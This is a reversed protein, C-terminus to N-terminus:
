SSKRNAFLLCCGGPTHFGRDNIPQLEPSVIRHTFGAEDLRACLERLTGHDFHVEMTLNRVRQLWDPERFVAFESGEIDMKLFDVSSLQHKDLLRRMSLVPVDSGGAIAAASEGIYAQELFYNKFGNLNMNHEYLVTFERLCEVSVVVKAHTAMCLSFLGRNAGLDVVTKADDFVHEPHFAFYSDRILMEQVTYFAPPDPVHRDNFGCDWLFSYGRYTIALPAGKGMALAVRRMAEPRGHLWVVPLNFVIHLWLEAFQKLGLVRYAALGSSRLRTTKLTEILSRLRSDPM